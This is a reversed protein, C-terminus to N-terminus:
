ATHHAIVIRSNHSVQDHHANYRDETENPRQELRLERPRFLQQALGFFLYAGLLEIQSFHQKLLSDPL